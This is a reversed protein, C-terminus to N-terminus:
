RESLHNIQLFQPTGAPVFDAGLLQNQVAVISTVQAAKVTLKQNQDTLVSLQNQLEKIQYGTAAYSNVSVLYSAAVFFCAVALVLSAWFQWASPKGVTKHRAASFHRDPRVLGFFNDLALTKLM